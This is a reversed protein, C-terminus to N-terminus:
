LYLPIGIEPVRMKQFRLIFDNREARDFVTFEGGIERVVTGSKKFGIQTERPPEFLFNDPNWWTIKQGMQSMKSEINAANSM